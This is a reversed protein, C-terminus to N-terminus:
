FARSIGIEARTRRYDYFEITSRNREISFRAVPALGRVQLQRFTAGIGLRLYRDARKDPFVFLREDALLCGYEVEATLTARGLDRWGTLGARWATTAYAPDKLSQRDLGLRVAVGSTPTLAREVGVQGSFVNGDQLNNVQNDVMAASGSLRVLTRGGISRSLLEAIRLSRMFPKQGFWRQTAGVELHLRSRRFNFEPGVAVDAAIDNFGSRRYLNAFGSLRMLLGHDNGLRFRRYVQGNLAVGIGSKAKAEKSIDFDGFVTGLTDSRTARNINSDPAFALEFNGGFPRQNRLAESYRDVLRAVAPPLGAAHIARIQRWAGDKDGMRDLIGALELRARSASPREDVVQRLLIAAYKLNGRKAELLALRFKAELHVDASPDGMLATYARRALQEDGRAAAADAIGLLQNATAEIRAVPSASVSFPEAAVVLALLAFRGRSVFADFLQLRM